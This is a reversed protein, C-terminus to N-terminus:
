SPRWLVRDLRQRPPRPRRNTPVQSEAERILERWDPDDERSVDAMDRAMRRELRCLTYLERRVDAWISDWSRRSAPALGGLKSQVQGLALDMRRTEQVFARARARGDPLRVRAAPLLVVIVAAAHRSIASFFADISPHSGTERDPEAVMAEGLRHTLARRSASLEALLREM